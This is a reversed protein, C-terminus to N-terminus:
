SVDEDMDLRVGGSVIRCIVCKGPEAPGAPLIVSNARGCGPCESGGIKVSYEFIKIYEVVFASRVRALNEDTLKMVAFYEGERRSPTIFPMGALKKRGGSGTVFFGAPLAEAAVEEPATKENFARFIELCNKRAGSDRFNKLKFSLRALVYNCEDLFELTKLGAPRASPKADGPSVIFAHYFAKGRFADKPLGLKSFSDASIEFVAGGAKKSIGSYDAVADASYEHEFVVSRRSSYDKSFAYSSAFDEDAKASDRDPRGPPASECAGCGSCERRTRACRPTERFEKARLWASYLFGRTVGYERDDSPLVDGEGKERFANDFSFGSESLYKKFAALNEEGFSDYFVFGKEDSLRLIAPSVDRGGREVIQTAEYQTRDISLRFVVREFPKLMSSIREATAFVKKPDPAPAFMLPTKQPTVMPMFSFILQSAASIRKRASALFSAFAKFESIDSDNELGTVIFFLKIQRPKFGLASEAFKKLRGEDIGKSLFARMRASIGEVAFTPSLSGARFLTGMLNPMSAARDIRQSKVRPVMGRKALGEVIEHIGSHDNFNYSYLNIIGVGTKEFAEAAAAVVDEAPRERYPKQTYGEKCFICMSPCGRTIEVPACASGGDEDAVLLPRAHLGGLEGVSAGRCPEPGSIDRLKLGSPTKEFRHAYNPPYYFGRIKKSMEVLAESKKKRFDPNSILFDLFDPFNAEAEGLFLADVLSSMGDDLFYEKPAGTPSHAGGNVCAASPTNVGGMVVLPSNEDSLRESLRYPIGMMKLLHPLNFLELATSNSVAIVDFDRAAIGTRKGRAARKGKIFEFVDRHEPFFFHDAVVKGPFGDEAVAALLSHSFSLGVTKEPTLRAILVKVSPGDTRRLM